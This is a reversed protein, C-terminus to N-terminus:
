GSPAACASSGPWYRSSCPWRCPRPRAVTNIRLIEERIAPPQHALLEALQTNSMVQANEELVQAVRQQDAPPLVTSSEAAGTFSFALAALM